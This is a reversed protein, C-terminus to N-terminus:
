SSHGRRENHEIEMCFPMGHRIELWRLMARETRRVFDFFEKVQKKLEFEDTKPVPQTNEAGFKVTQVTTPWPDLIIEGHEVQVHELRGFGLRHLALAFRLESPRLENVSRPCDPSISRNKTITRHLPLSAEDCEALESEPPGNDEEASSKNEAWCHYKDPSLESKVKPNGSSLKTSSGQRHLMEM